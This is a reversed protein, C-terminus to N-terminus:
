RRSTSGRPRRSIGQPGIGGLGGSNSEFGRYDFFPIPNVLPDDPPAFNLDVRAFRVIFGQRSPITRTWMAEFRNLNVRM